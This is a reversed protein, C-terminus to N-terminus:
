FIEEKEETTYFLSMFEERRVSAAVQLLSLEAMKRNNIALIELNAIKDPIEFDILMKKICDFIRRNGYLFKGECLIKSAVMSKFDNFLLQEHVVAMDKIIYDIEEKFAPNMLLNYKESYISKDLNYLTEQPLKDGVIILDLDSGKVLKGTSSEPRPEAHAMGYVIDGAIIFCARESLVGAEVSSDVLKKAVDQALAFKKRSIEKIESDLIEARRAVTQEDKAAGIVTYSSFERMISPSLRAYGEVQRDFRLYRTGIKKTVIQESKSCLSWLYFEEADVKRLLEKGVLPGETELTHIIRELMKMKDPNLYRPNCYKTLRCKFINWVPM